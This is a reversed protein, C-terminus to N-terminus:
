ASKEVVEATPLIVRFCTGDNAGSEVEIRGGLDEVLGHTISLGLGTGEGPGKTTFFPDFIHKLNEAPIGVGTDIIEITAQRLKNHKTKLTLTGGNPMAQLANQILNLFMQILKNRDARVFIEQEGLVDEVEVNQNLRGVQAFKLASQVASRVDITELQDERNVPQQRAFNLLSEVISKCRQAAAEIEVVDQYHSSSKDMERLLMQSFILIGGLPNNLEHAVGGALLGISALKESQLLQNQMRKADTRDRYVQLMGELEGDANFIPQSTVEHYKGPIANELTFQKPEKERWSQLMACGKCPTKRGAFVEHCKSGVISKIDHNAIRALAQNAKIIRFDKDVIMLPDIIADVTAMWQRKLDEVFKVTNKATRAM